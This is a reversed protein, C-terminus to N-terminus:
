DFLGPPVDILAVHNQTNDCFEVVRQQLTTIDALGSETRPDLILGTLASPAVSAATAAPVIEVCAAFEAGAGGSAPIEVAEEGAWQAPLYLDPLVVQTVSGCQALACLGNGPTEDAAPCQRGPLRRRKPM